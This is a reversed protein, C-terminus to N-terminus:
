WEQLSNNILRVLFFFVSFINAFGDTLCYDQNEPEIMASMLLYPCHRGQDNWARQTWFADFVGPDLLLQNPALGAGFLVPEKASKLYSVTRLCITEYLSWSQVDHVHFKCHGSQIANQQATCVVWHVCSSWSSKKIGLLHHLGGLPPGSCLHRTLLMVDCISYYAIISVDSVIVIDPLIVEIKECTEKKIRQLFTSGFAYYKSWFTICFITFRINALLFIKRM